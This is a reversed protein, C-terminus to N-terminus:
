IKIVKNVSETQLADKLVLLLEEYNYSNDNKNVSCLYRDCNIIVIIKLDPRAFTEHSIKKFNNLNLFDEVFDISDHIDKMDKICIDRINMSWDFYKYRVYLIKNVNNYMFSWKPLLKGLDMM